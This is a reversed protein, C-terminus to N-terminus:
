RLRTSLIKETLTNCSKDEGKYKMRFKTSEVKQLIPLYLLSGKMMISRNYQKMIASKDSVKHLIYKHFSPVCPSSVVSLNRHIRRYHIVMWASKFCHKDLVQCLLYSKKLLVAISLFNKLFVTARIWGGITIEEETDLGVFPFVFSRRKSIALFRFGHVSTSFLIRKNTPLDNGRWDPASVTFSYGFFLCDKNEGKSSHVLSSVVSLSKREKKGRM